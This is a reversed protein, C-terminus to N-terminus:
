DSKTSIIRIPTFSGATSIKRFVNLPLSEVLSRYRAESHRVEDDARKRGLAYRVAHELIGAELDDKILYDQAGGAVANAAVARQCSQVARRGGRGAGSVCAIVCRHPRM